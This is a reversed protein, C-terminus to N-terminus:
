SICQKAKEFSSTLLQLSGEESLLAFISGRKVISYPYNKGQVRVGKCQIVKEKHKYNVLEVNVSSDAETEPPLGASRVMQTLANFFKEENYVSSEPTLKTKMETMLKTKNSNSLLIAGINSEFLLWRGELSTIYFTVNNHKIEEAPVEKYVLEALEVDKYLLLAQTTPLEKKATGGKYERRELYAKIKATITQEVDTPEVKCMKQVFSGILKDQFRHDEPKTIYETYHYKMTPTYRTPNALACYFFEKLEERYQDVIQDARTDESRYVGRHIYDLLDQRLSNIHGVIRVNLEMDKAVILKGQQIEQEKIEAHRQRREAREKDAQEKALQRQRQEEEKKRQEEQQKLIQEQKVFEIYAKGEYNNEILFTIFDFETKTLEQLRNTNDNHYYYVTKPKTEEQTRRNWTTYNDDIEPRTYGADKISCLYQYRQLVENNYRLHQEMYDRIRAQQMPTKNAEFLNM